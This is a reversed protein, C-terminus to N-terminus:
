IYQLCKPKASLILSPLISIGRRPSGGWWPSSTKTGWHDPSSHQRSRLNRTPGDMGSLDFPLPWAFHLRQSPTLSVVGCRFCNITLFGHLDPNYRWSVLLLLLLIHQISHTNTHWECVDLLTLFHSSHSIVFELVIYRILIHCNRQLGTWIGWKDIM